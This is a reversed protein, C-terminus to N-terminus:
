GTFCEGREKKQLREKSARAKLGKKKCARECARESPRIIASAGLTSSETKCPSQLSVQGGPRVIAILAALAALSGAPIAETPKDEMVIVM